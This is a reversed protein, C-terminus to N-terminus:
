NNLQTRIKIAEHVTTQRAGRSKPNELCSHQLPNGDGVGPSIESGLILRMGRADGANAPSNKASCRRPLGGERESPKFNYM